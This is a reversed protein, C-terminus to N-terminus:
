LPPYEHTLDILQGLPKTGVPHFIPRQPFESGNIASSAKLFFVKRILAHGTNMVTLNIRQVAQVDGLSQREHSRIHEGFRLFSMWPIHNHGYGALIHFIDTFAYGPQTLRIHGHTPM